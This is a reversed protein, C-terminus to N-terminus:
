LGMCGVWICVAPRQRVAASEPGGVHVDRGTDRSSGEPRGQSSEADKKAKTNEAAAVAKDDIDVRGDDGLCASAKRLGSRILAYLADMLRLLPMPLAPVLVWGHAPCM